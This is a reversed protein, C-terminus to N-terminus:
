FMFLANTSKLSFSAILNQIKIKFSAIFDAVNFKNELQILLDVLQQSQARIASQNQLAFKDFCEFAVLLDIPDEKSRFMEMFQKITQPLRRACLDALEDVPLEFPKDADELQKTTVALHLFIMISSKNLNGNDFLRAVLDDKIPDDVEFAEKDDGIGSLKAM